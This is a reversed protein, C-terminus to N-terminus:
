MLGGVGLLVALWRARGAIWWAGGLAILFWRWGLLSQLLVAGAMLVLHTETM